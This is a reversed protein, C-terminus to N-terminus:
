ANLLLWRCSHSWIGLFVALDPQGVATRARLITAATPVARRDQPFAPFACINVDNRPEDPSHRNFLSALLCDVDILWRRRNTGYNGFPLQGPENDVALLNSFWPM